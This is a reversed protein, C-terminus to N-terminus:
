PMLRFSFANEVINKQTLKMNIKVTFITNESILQELQQCRLWKLMHVWFHSTYIPVDFYQQLTNSPSIMSSATKTSQKKIWQDLPFNMLFHELRWTTELSNEGWSIREQKKYSALQCPFYIRLSNNAWVATFVMTVCSMM